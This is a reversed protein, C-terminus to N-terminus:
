KTGINYRSARRALAEQRAAEMSLEQERRFNTEQGLIDSLLQKQAQQALNMQTQFDEQFRGQEAGFLGSHILGRSAFENRMDELQRVRDQEMQESTQTFSTGAEGRRRTLESLFDQLSRKGGRVGQQYVEDGALYSKISPPPKPKPKPKPARVAAPASRPAPSSFSSPPPSVSRRQPPSARPTPVKRRPASSRSSRGTRKKSRTPKYNSPLSGGDLM